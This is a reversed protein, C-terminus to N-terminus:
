AFFRSFDNLIFEVIANIGALILRVSERAAPGGQGFAIGIAPYFQVDVYEGPIRALETGEEVAGEYISYPNSSGVIVPLGPNFIGGDTAAAVLNFHRHKDTNCLAELWLLMSDRYSHRGYYPQYWKVATKAERSM